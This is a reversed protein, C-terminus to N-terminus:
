DDSDSGSCEDSDNSNDDNNNSNDDDDNNNSNTNDDDSDNRDALMGGVMAGLIPSDTAEAVLMSTLFDGGSNNTNDSNTGWQKRTDSRLYETPKVVTHNQTDGCVVYNNTGGSAAYNRTGGTAVPTTRLTPSSFTPEPDLDTTYLPRLASITEVPADTKKKKFLDTFWNSM